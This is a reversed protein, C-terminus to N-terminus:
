KGYTENYYQEADKLLDGNVCYNAFKIMQEKEMAIASEKRECLFDITNAYAEDGAQRMNESLAKFEEFLLEMATQQAMILKNKNNLEEIWKDIILQDKAPRGFKLEALLISLDYNAPSLLPNTYAEKTKTSNKM